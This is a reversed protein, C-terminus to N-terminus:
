RTLAIACLTELHAVRSGPRWREVEESSDAGEGRAVLDNAPYESALSLSRLREGNTLHQTGREM